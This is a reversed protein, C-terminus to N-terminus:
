CHSFGLMSSELQSCCCFISFFLSLLRSFKFLVCKLPGSTNASTREEVQVVSSAVTALRRAENMEKENRM